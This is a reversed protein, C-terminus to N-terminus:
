IVWYLLGLLLDSLSWVEENFVKKESIEYNINIALEDLDKNIQNELSIENHCLDVNHFGVWFIHIGVLLIGLSILFVSEGIIENLNKKQQKTLKKM